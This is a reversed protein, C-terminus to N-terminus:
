LRIVSLHLAILAFLKIQISNLKRHLFDCLNKIKPKLSFLFQFNYVYLLTPLSLYCQSWTIILCVLIYLLIFCLNFIFLFCIFICILKFNIIIINGINNLLILLFYLLQLLLSFLHCLIWLSITLLYIFNILL